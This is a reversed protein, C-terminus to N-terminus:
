LKCWFFRRKLHQLMQHATQFAEPILYIQNVSLDARSSTQRSVCILPHYESFEALNHPACILATTSDAIQAIKEQKEKQNGVVKVTIGPLRTYFAEAIIPSEDTLLVVAIKLQQLRELAMDIHPLIQRECAFVALLRKPGQMALFLPYKGEAEIQQALTATAMGLEVGETQMSLADGLVYWTRDLKGMVGVGGTADVEMERIPLGIQVAARHIGSFLIPSTKAAALSAAVQVARQRSDETQDRVPYTATLVTEPACLLQSSTFVVEKISAMVKLQTLDQFVAAWPATSGAFYKKLYREILM